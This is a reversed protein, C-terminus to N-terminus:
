SPISNCLLQKLAFCMWTANVGPKITEEDVIRRRYVVISIFRLRSSNISCNQPISADELGARKAQEM